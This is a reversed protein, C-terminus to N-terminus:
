EDDSESEDLGSGSARLVDRERLSQLTSLSPVAGLPQLTARELPPLGSEDGGPLGLLDVM